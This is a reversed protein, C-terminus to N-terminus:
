KVFTQTSHHIMLKPELVLKQCAHEQGTEFAKRLLEAARRGMEFSNQEVYTFLPEMGQFIRPQDFCVVSLEEPIRIGGTQCLELLWEAAHSNSVVAATIERARIASLLREMEEQSFTQPNFREVAHLPLQQATMAAVYAGYRVSTVQERFSSDAIFCINRHGLSLLHEVALWGGKENDCCVCSSQIGPFCRDILVLPFKNLHMRLITDSYVECDVPFLIVGACGSKLAQELAYEELQNRITAAIALDVWFALFILEKHFNVMSKRFNGGGFAFCLLAGNAMANQSITNLHRTRQIVQEIRINDKANAFLRQCFRQRKIWLTCKRIKKIKKIVELILGANSVLCNGIHLRKNLLIFWKPLQNGAHYRFGNTKANRGLGDVFREQLRINRREGTHQRVFIKVMRIRNGSFGKSDGFFQVANATDCHYRFIVNTEEGALALRDGSQILYFRGKCFDAGDIRLVEHEVPFQQYRISIGNRGFFLILAGRLDNTGCFGMFLTNGIIDKVRQLQIGELRLLALHRVVHASLSQIYQTLDSMAGTDTHNRHLIHAVVYGLNLGLEIMLSGQLVFADHEVQEVSGILKGAGILEQLDLHHVIAIQADDAHFFTIAFEGACQTRQNHIIFSIRNAYAGTEAIGVAGSDPSIWVSIDAPNGCNM